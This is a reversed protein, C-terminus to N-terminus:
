EYYDFFHNGLKTEIEGKNLIDVLGLLTPFSFNIGHQPEIHIDGQYILNESIVKNIIKQKGLFAYVASQPASCSVPPNKEGFYYIGEPIKKPMVYGHWHALASGSSSFKKSFQNNPRFYELISAFIANAICHALIVRTDFSPRFDSSLQAGIPTMLVMRGNVLGMKVVDKKPDLNNKDSGSRSTLVWVDPVSMRFSRNQFSFTLYLHDDKVKVGDSVKEKPCEEVTVLNSPLQRALFGYSMGNRHDLILSGLWRYMSSRFKLDDVKRHRPFLSIKSFGASSGILDDVFKKHNQDLPDFSNERIEFDALKPPQVPAYIKPILTNLINIEFNDDFKFTPHSANYSYLTWSDQGVTIILNSMTWAFLNLANELHDDFESILEMAETKKVISVIPNHRLSLTFDIPLKGKDFNGIAITAIGQKVKPKLNVHFFEFKGTSFNQITKKINLFGIKVKRSFSLNSYAEANKVVTVGIKLFVVELKKGFDILEKEANASYIFTVKLKKAMDSSSLDIDGSLGLVRQITEISFNM